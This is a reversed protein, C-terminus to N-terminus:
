RSPPACKGLAQEVEEREDESGAFNLLRLLAPYLRPDGLQEGAAVAADFALQGVVEEEESRALEQLIPEVIRPDGRQALGILAEGRTEDDEDTVRAWLSARIEPTDTDIMQGLEFTAWDRVKTDKDRTLEILATIAQAAEHGGLGLVVGYRVRADPHNKLKVLPAVARPDAIEGLAHGIDSLVEPDQERALQPLLLKLSQDPAVRDPIFIGQALIRAALQRRKPDDSRFLQKAAKMVQSAPRYWFAGAPEWAADDDKASLAETILQDPSRPDNRQSEIYDSHSYGQNGTTSM